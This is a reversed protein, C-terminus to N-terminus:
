TSSQTIGIGVFGFLVLLSIKMIEVTLLTFNGLYKYWHLFLNIQAEYQGYICIHGIGRLLLGMTPLEITSINYLVGM